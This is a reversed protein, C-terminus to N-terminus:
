ADLLKLSKMGQIHSWSLDGLLTDSHELLIFVNVADSFFGSLHCNEKHTPSTNILYNKIQM